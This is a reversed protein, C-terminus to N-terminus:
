EPLNEQTVDQVSLDGYITPYRLRELERQNM